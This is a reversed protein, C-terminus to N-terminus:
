SFLVWKGDRCWSNTAAPLQMDIDSGLLWINFWIKMRTASVTVSTLQMCTIDRSCPRCIPKIIRLVSTKNILLLFLFYFSLCCSPNIPPKLFIQCVKMMDGEVEQQEDEENDGADKVLILLLLM